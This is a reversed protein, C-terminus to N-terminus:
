GPGPLGSLDAATQIHVQNVVLNENGGAGADQDIRSFGITVSRGNPIMLSRVRLQFSSLRNSHSGILLMMATPSFLSKPLSPGRRFFRLLFACNEYEVARIVAVHFRPSHDSAVFRSNDADVLHLDIRWSLQNDRSLRANVIV